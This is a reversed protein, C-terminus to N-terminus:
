VTSKDIGFLNGTMRLRGTDKLYYLTIAVKKQLSLARYNPSNAKPRIFPELETCLEHFGERDLPINKEM